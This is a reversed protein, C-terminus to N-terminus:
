NLYILPATLSNEEDIRNFIEDTEVFFCIKTPPSTNRETITKSIILGCPEKRILRSIYDLNVVDLSKDFIYSSYGNDLCIEKKIRLGTDGLYQIENKNNSSFNWQPYVNMFQNRIHDFYPRKKDHYLFEIHTTNDISNYIRFSLFHVNKNTIGRCIPSSHNMLYNYMKEYEKMLFIDSYELIEQKLGYLVPLKTIKNIANDGFIQIIRSDYYKEITHLQTMNHIRNQITIIDLGQQFLIHYNGMKNILSYIWKQDIISKWLHCVSRLKYFNYLDCNHYSYSHAIIKYLLEIPLSHITTM